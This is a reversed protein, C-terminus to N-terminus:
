VARHNVVVLGFVISHGHEGIGATVQVNAVPVGHAWTVDAGTVFTHLTVVDEERHAKVGKAERGLVGSDLVVDMGVFPRHGVDLVHPSLQFRHAGHEVPLSFGDGAQGAVVTPGLPKEQFQVIHAQGVAFLGRHVKAGLAVGGQGPLLDPSLVAVAFAAAGRDDLLFQILPEPAGGSIGVFQEVKGLNVPGLAHDRHLGVPDPAALPGVDSERNRVGGRGFPPLPPRPTLADDDEGCSWVREPARGKHHQGRLVRQHVFQRRRLEQFFHPFVFELGGALALDLAHRGLLFLGADKDASVGDVRDVVFADRDPDGVIHHHSIARAGDHCHRGVVLPIELEGLLM